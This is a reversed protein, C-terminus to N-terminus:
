PRPEGSCAKPMFSIMAMANVSVAVAATASESGTALAGPGLPVLGGARRHREAVHAREPAAAQRM